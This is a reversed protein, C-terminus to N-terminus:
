ASGHSEQHPLGGPRGQNKQVVKSSKSLSEMVAAAARAVIREEDAPVVYVAVRSEATSIRAEGRAAANAAPDLQIGFAELGGCVSARIDAENEGIGGSFTLVDIGGLEVMFAGIYRRVARVFVEVALRARHDGAAAAAKLDRMDGSGGSLGALGSRSALIGAMQDVSLGLRKMVYLAAFADVDGSRNNHPIGSQASMGFSTDVAVGARIAALSSSGGLHCSIHRLDKRGLLEAARESAARHSAGHFGYRRVGLETKWEYPVPYTVTSEPLDECFATEFLAVLPLGPAQKRFARMAAIYPPNHAPALFTFEEMARLAADDVLRAGTLPGAHVAKFGVADLAALDELPKGPGAIEGLCRIIAAGYDPCDGGPQGIRDVVGRGLVAGTEMAYLRYKFSTSGINAVLIKM